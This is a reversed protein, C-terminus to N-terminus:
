PNVEAHAALAASEGYSDLGRPSPTRDTQTQNM